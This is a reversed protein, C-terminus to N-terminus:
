KHNGPLHVPTHTIPLQLLFAWAMRIGPSFSPFSSFVNTSFLLSSPLPSVNSVWYRGRGMQVSWAMTTHASRHASLCFQSGKAQHSPSQLLVPPPPGRGWTEKGRHPKRAPPHGQDRGGERSPHSPPEWERGVQGM